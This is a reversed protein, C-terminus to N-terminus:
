SILKSCAIWLVTLHCLSQANIVESYLDDTGSFLLGSYHVKVPKGMATEQKPLIRNGRFRSIRFTVFELRYRM